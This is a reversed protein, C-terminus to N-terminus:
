HQVHKSDAQADGSANLFQIRDRPAIVVKAEGDPTQTTCLFMGAYEGSMILAACMLYYEKDGFVDVGCPLAIGHVDLEPPEQLAVPEDTM